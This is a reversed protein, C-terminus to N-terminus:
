DNYRFFVFDGHCGKMEAKELVNFNWDPRMNCIQGRKIRDIRYRMPSYFLVCGETFDKEQGRIVPIVNRIVREIEDELGNRNRLYEEAKNYLEMGYADFGTNKIIEEASKYKRWERFGVRNMIVHAVAKQTNDSANRSEGYVTCIIIKEEERVEPFPGFRENFWPVHESYWRNIEEPKRLAKDPIGSDAEIMEYEESSLARIRYLHSAKREKFSCFEDPFVLPNKIGPFPLMCILSFAQNISLESPEADFYYRSADTVGYLGNGFYVTNLYLELIQDKTLGSEIYFSIFAEKIKRGLTGRFGFYLNKCLQQTITSAGYKMRGAKLNLYTCRLVARIDVGPHRYFQRDELLVTYRRLFDPMNEISCFDQEQSRKRYIQEPPLLGTLNKSYMRFVPGGLTPFVTGKLFRKIINKEKNKEM